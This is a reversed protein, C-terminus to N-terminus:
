LLVRRRERGRVEHGFEAHGVRARGLDQLAQLGPAVDADDSKLAALAAEAAVRHAGVWATQTADTLTRRRCSSTWRFACPSCGSVASTLDGSIRSSSAQSAIPIRVPISLLM